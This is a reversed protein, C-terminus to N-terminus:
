DDKFTRGGACIWAYLRSGFAVQKRGEMGSLLAERLSPFHSAKPWDPPSAPDAAFVLDAREDLDAPPM